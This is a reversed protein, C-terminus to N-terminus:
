LFLSNLPLGIKRNPAAGKRHPATLFYHVWNEGAKIQQFIFAICVDFYLKTIPSKLTIEKRLALQGDISLPM